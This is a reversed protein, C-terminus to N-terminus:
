SLRRGLGGAVGLAAAAMGIAVLPWWAVGAAAQSGTGTDPPRITGTGTGPAAGSGGSGGTGTGPPPPGGTCQVIISADLPNDDDGIVSAIVTVGRPQGDGTVNGAGALPTVVTSGKGDAANVVLPNATGLTLVQWNIDVGNAVPDGETNLVTATVTSTTAGDCDIVPPEAALTLTEPGSIVNLTIREREEFDAYIHFNVSSSSGDDFRAELTLDGPTKGGCIFQPFGIGLAGTDLTPTQPLIVGGQNLRNSGFAFSGNRTNDGDPDVVYWALVAGSVEVGKSDLAKTVIVTQEEKNGAGLVGEVSLNAACDTPELRECDTTTDIALDGCSAPPLTSGTQVTDKGFLPEMTIEDPPGTVKLTIPFGINEQVVNVNVVGDDGDAPDLVLKGVVVGDGVTTPDEDCDPDVAGAFDPDTTSCILEQGAAGGLPGIFRGRDTTFRVPFDDNVFAIISYPQGAHIQDADFATISTFLDPEPRFPYNPDTNPVPNPCYLQRNADRLGALCAAYTQFAVQNGLGACNFLGVVGPVGGFAVGLTICHAENFAYAQIPSAEAPQTRDNFSSAFMTAAIVAPIVGLKLALSLFRRTMSAGQAM